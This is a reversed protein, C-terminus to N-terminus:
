SDAQGHEKSKLWDRNYGDPYEPKGDFGVKITGKCDPFRQCGWFPSWEAGPKTPRRLIMQAGCQPCYPVPHTFIAQSKM